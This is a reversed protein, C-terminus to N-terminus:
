SSFGCSVSSTLNQFGQAELGTQICGLHGRPHTNRIVRLLKGFVVKNARDCMLRYARGGLLFALESTRFARVTAIPPGSPDAPSLMTVISVPSETSWQGKIKSYLSESVYEEKSGPDLLGEFPKGFILVTILQPVPFYLGPINMTSKLVQLRTPFTRFPLQHNGLLVAAPNTVQYM